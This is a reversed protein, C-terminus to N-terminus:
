AAGDVPEYSVAFVDAKVPYFHDIVPEAVVWDGVRAIAKDGHLTTLELRAPAWTGDLHIGAAGGWDWLQHINDGTWQMAEVVVPKKRYRPMPQTRDTLTAPPQIGHDRTM